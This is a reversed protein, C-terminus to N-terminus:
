IGMAGVWFGAFGLAGLLFATGYLGVQLDSRRHLLTLRAGAIVSPLGLVLFPLFFLMISALDDAPMLPELILYLLFGGFGCAPILFGAVLVSLGIVKVGLRIGENM